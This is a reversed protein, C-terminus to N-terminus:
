GRRGLGRWERLRVPGRAVPLLLLRRDDRLLRRRGPGHVRLNTTLDDPFSVDDGFALLTGASDWVAAVTDLDSGATNVTLTQGAAATVKFFDFDGNGTGAEGHPGDGIESTITAGDADAPIGTDTALPISGQDETTGVDPAEIDPAFLEGLIRVAQHKRKATGFRPIGEATAPSDNSGITGEPEQEDRVFPTPPKLSAYRKEAQKAM